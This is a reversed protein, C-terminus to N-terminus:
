NSWRFRVAQGPQLQAARDVDAETLVGIVPYGGTVPHDNLFIIPEGSPPVQVCGRVMAESPLEQDQYATDRTLGNGELRVGVRNSRSSVSWVQATIAAHDSFWDSRPGPLLKLEVTGTAPVASAVADVNPFTGEFEGIPVVDGARVQEPGLGALTDTSRSGLVAPVDFGGRVTLYTRLGRAPQGVRIVDGDNLQLVANHPRRHGNVSIEADAGTLAVIQAGHITAAFGGFTIEIAALGEGHAVMRAGLEYAGRDVAGSLGAGVAAYGPRGGDQFLALPGPAIVEIASM